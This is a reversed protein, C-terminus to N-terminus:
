GIILDFEFGIDAGLHACANGQNIAIELFGSSGVLALLSGRPADAYTLSLREIHWDEYSVKCRDTTLRTIPYNPDFAHHFLLEGEHEWELRGISTVINGFRDVSLVEGRIRRDQLDLQPLPLRVYDDLPQGLVDIATGSSLFAAAPAFVDRGHFTNSVRSLRHQRSILECVRAKPDRGLVYSLVGNDPAIFTYEGATAVIPRRAAGVGPDVVVV